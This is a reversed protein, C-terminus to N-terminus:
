ILDSDVLLKDVINVWKSETTKKNYIRLDQWENVSIDYVEGDVGYPAGSLGTAKLELGKDSLFKLYDQYNPM